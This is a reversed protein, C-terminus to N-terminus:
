VERISQRMRGRSQALPRRRGLFSAIPLFFLLSVFIGLTNWTMAFGYAMWGLLSSFAQDILLLFTLIIGDLWILRIAAVSTFFGAAFGLLGLRLMHMGLPETSFAALLLAGAWGAFIGARRGKRMGTLAVTAELFCFGTWGLLLGPALSKDVWFAAGVLLLISVARKGSHSERDRIM